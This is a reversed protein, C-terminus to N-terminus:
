RSQVPQPQQQMPQRPAGQAPPAMVPRSNLKQFQEPTLIKKIDLVNQVNLETNQKFLDTIEGILGKVQADASVPKNLEDRLELQKARLKEMIGRAATMNRDRAEDLKVQQEATIGLEQLPGGAPRGQNENTPGGAAPGQQGWAYMSVGSALVMVACVVLLAKKM